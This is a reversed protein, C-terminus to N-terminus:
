IASKLDEITIKASILDDLLTRYDSENQQITKDRAAIMAEFLNLDKESSEIQENKNGIAERHNRITIQEDNKIPKIQENNLEKDIKPKHIKDIPPNIKNM